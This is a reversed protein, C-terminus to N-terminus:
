SERGNCPEFQKCGSGIGEYCAFRLHERTTKMDCGKFHLVVAHRLDGGLFFETLPV